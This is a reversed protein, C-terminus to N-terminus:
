LKKNLLFNVIDLGENYKKDIERELKSADNKELITHVIDNRFDIYSSLSKFEERKLHSAVRSERASQSFNRPAKLGLIKNKRNCECSFERILGEIVSAQLLFAQIFRPNQDEDPSFFFDDQSRNILIKANNIIEKKM